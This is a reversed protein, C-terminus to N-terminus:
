AAQLAARVFALASENWSDMALGYGHGLCPDRLYMHPIDHQKLAQAYRDSNVVSVKSDYICHFVFAPTTRAASVQLDTSTQTELLVGPRPGLLAKVAPMYAGPGLMAIVSYVLVHVNPYPSVLDVPDPRRVAFPPLNVAMSSLHGGASFGLVGIRSQNVHWASADYRVYRVARQIDLLQTPFRYRPSIRYRLVFATLGQSTLWRAM